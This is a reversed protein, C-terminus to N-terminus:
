LLDVFESTSLKADRLIKRLLGRGVHRHAPVTLPKMASHTLRVHSGRQRSVHYGSRLLAQVIDHGSLILLRPM